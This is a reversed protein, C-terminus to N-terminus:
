KPAVPPPPIQRPLNKLIQLRQVLQNMKLEMDGSLLGKWEGNEKEFSVVEMKTYNLMGPVSMKMRTVVHATNEGEAVKGLVQGEASQMAETMGPIKAFSGMLTEFFKTPTMAKVEAATAGGFLMKSVQAANPDDKAAEAAELIPTLMGQLRVLAQTHMNAAYGAWDGKRMNAIQAAALNEPTTEAAWVPAAALLLTLLLRKM